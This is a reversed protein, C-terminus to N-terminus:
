EDAETWGYVGPEWVNNDVSSTWHQGNHTVKAGLAYADHAGVPQSWEPWEEAPDSIKVWLSVAKDPTWDEQSTHDSICRYLEGGYRRINGTKYSVPCAWDAFVDAHEGATVDDIDGKEAMTVFAISTTENVTAVQQRTQFIFEGGEAETVVVEAAGPISDGGNINYLTGSVSVGIAEEPGSAIYAGSAENKKVYRPRDCLALLVGGSIIAYM